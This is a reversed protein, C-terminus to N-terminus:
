TLSGQLLHESASEREHFIRPHEGLPLPVPLSSAQKLTTEPVIGPKVHDWQPSQLPCSVPPEARGTAKYWPPLGAPSHCGIHAVSSSGSWRAGWIECLFRGQPGGPIPQM